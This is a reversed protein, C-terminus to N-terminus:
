ELRKPSPAEPFPRAEVVPILSAIRKGDEFLQIKEGKAIRKLLADANDRLDSFPTQHM